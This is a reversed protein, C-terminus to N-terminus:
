LKYMWHHKGDKQMHIRPVYCYFMTCCCSINVFVCTHRRIHFFIM